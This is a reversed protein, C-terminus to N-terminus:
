VKTNQRGVKSLGKVVAMCLGKSIKYDRYIIWLFYLNSSKFSVDVFSFFFVHCKDKLNQTVESLTGEKELKM